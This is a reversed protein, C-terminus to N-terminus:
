ELSLDLSDLVSFGTAVGGENSTASKTRVLFGVGKNEEFDGIKLYTGYIGLETVSSLLEAKGNRVHYALHEPPRIREMLIHASLESPTMTDLAVVIDNDYINNGGGERQPKLVFDHPNSRVKKLFQDYEEQNPYERADLSYIGAFFSRL